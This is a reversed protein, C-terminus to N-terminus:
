LRMTANRVPVAVDAEGQVLVAGCRPSGNLTFSYLAADFRTSGIPVTATGIRTAGAVDWSKRAWTDDVLQLDLATPPRLLEAFTWTGSLAIVLSLAIGLTAWLFV